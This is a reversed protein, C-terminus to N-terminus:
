AAVYVVSLAVLMLKGHAKILRPNRPERMGFGEDFVTWATMRASARAMSLRSSGATSFIASFLWSSGKSTRIAVISEACVRSATVAAADARSNRTARVGFVIAFSVSFCIM